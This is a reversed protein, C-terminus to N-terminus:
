KYNLSCGTSCPLPRILWADILVIHRLQVLFEVRAPPFQFRLLGVVGIQALDFRDIFLQRFSFLAGHSKTRAELVGSVGMGSKQFSLNRGFGGGRFWRRILSNRLVSAPMARAIYGARGERRGYFELLCASSGERMGVDRFGDVFRSESARRSEEHADWLLMACQFLTWARRQCGKALQKNKGPVMTFFGM